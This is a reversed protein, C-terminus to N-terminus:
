IPLGHEKRLEVIEKLAKIFHQKQRMHDYDYLIKMSEEVPRNLNM